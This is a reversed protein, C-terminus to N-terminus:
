LELCALKEALEAPLEVPSLLALLDAVPRTDISEIPKSLEAELIYQLEILEM